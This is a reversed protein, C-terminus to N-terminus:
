GRFVTPPKAGAASYFPLSDWMDCEDKAYGTTVSMEIDFVLSQDKEADYLPWGEEVLSDGGKHAAISWYKMFQWSIKSEIDGAQVGSFAWSHWVFPIEAAHCAGRHHNCADSHPNVLDHNPKYLFHYKFIQPAPETSNTNNSLLAALYRTPCVFAYDTMLRSFERRAEIERAQYSVKYFEFIDDSYEGFQSIVLLHYDTWDIPVKLLTPGFTWADSENRNTGIVITIPKGDKRRNYKGQQFLWLPQAPIIVGDITPLWQLFYQTKEL